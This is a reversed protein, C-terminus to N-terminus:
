YERRSTGRKVDISGDKRVTVAACDGFLQRYSSEPFGNLLEFLEECKEMPVLQFNEDTEDHYASVSDGGHHGLTIRGITGYTPLSRRFDCQDDLVYQHAPPVARKTIRKSTGIVRGFHDTRTTEEYQEPQGPSLQKGMRPVRESILLFNEMGWYYDEDNYQDDSQSWTLYWGDPLEEAVAEAFEKRVKGLAKDMSAEFEKHAKQIKSTITKLAM